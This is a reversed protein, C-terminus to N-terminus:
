KYYKKILEKAKYVKDYDSVYGRDLLESLWYDIDLDELTQILQSAIITNYVFRNDRSVAVTGGNEDRVVWGMELSNNLYGETVKFNSTGNQSCSYIYYM